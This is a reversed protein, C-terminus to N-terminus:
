CSAYVLDMHHGAVVRFERTFKTVRRCGRAIQLIRSVAYHDFLKKCLPPSRDLFGIPLIGDADIRERRAQVPQEIRSRRAAM